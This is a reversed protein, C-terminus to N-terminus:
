QHTSLPEFGQMATVGKKAKRRVVGIAGLGAVLLAWTEPEPIPAALGLTATGFSADTVRYIAPSTFSVTTGHFTWTDLGGFPHAAGILSVLQGGAVVATFPGGNGLSFRRDTEQIPPFYNPQVLSLIPEAAFVDIAFTGDGDPATLTLKGSWGYPHSYTTEPEPLGCIVQCYRLEGDFDFTYSTVAQAHLSMVALAAALMTKRFESM